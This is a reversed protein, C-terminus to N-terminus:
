RDGSSSKCGLDLNVAFSVVFNCLWFINCNLTQLIDDERTWAQAKPTNVRPNLPLFPFRSDHSLFVAQRAQASAGFKLQASWLVEFIKAVELSKKKMLFYCLWGRGGGRIGSLPTNGASKVPHTARSISLKAICAGQYSTQRGHTKKISPSPLHIDIIPSLDSDRILILVAYISLWHQLLIPKHASQPSVCLPSSLEHAPEPTRTRGGPWSIFYRVYTLQSMQGYRDFEARFAQAFEAVGHPTDEGYRGFWGWIAEISQSAAVIVDAM